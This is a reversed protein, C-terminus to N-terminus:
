SKETVINGELLLNGAAVTLRLAEKMFPEVKSTIRKINFLSGVERFLDATLMSSQRNIIHTMAVGLEQPPIDEAKRNGGTRYINFTEPNDEDKWYFVRGMSTTECLKLLAIREIFHQRLRDNIRTLGFHQTLREILLQQSIPAETDIVTYIYDEIRSNMMVSSLQVPTANFLDVPTVVYRPMRKQRKKKLTTTPQVDPQQKEKKIVPVENHRIDTALANDIERSIRAMVEDPNDWWDLAWIRVITWGLQRLVTPQILERDRITPSKIHDTGDSIIGILFRGNERPDVVALDIRFDSSGVHKEVQYGEKTIRRAISDVLSDDGVHTLRRNGDMLAQKGARAYELFLKLGAVGEAATRNLDIQDPTLTSFVKMEYRARSVAVNLRRWGGDRNLPGFNLTINGMKDPGFGVSFLIVDREDGQVNELNKIFIPEEGDLAKSELKPNNLLMENLLDEILSQQNTNFTVVGISFKSLAEDELRRKIEAIIADAEARNQRSHGRDYVGKVEVFSVKSIRDDPSPFTMLRNQYYCTNSFTILSEHRSRYHWNLFRSPLQLALCDDLLSELDELIINEEHTSASFFNTPPMQNPDGVIITNKGRAIVGVAENTPIQSAEDFIVLDFVQEGPEIYQAVSMPSMLMCPCIRHLLSRISEFLSRLSTGRGGNRINRQLINVASSRAAESQLDPLGDTISVFLEQRTLAEFQCCLEQFQKVLQDFMKGNFEKLEPELPLAYEAYAKSFGRRFSDSLSDPTITGDMLRDAVVGLGNNQLRHALANMACRDKLLGIHDLWAQIRKRIDALSSKPTIQEHTQLTSCLQRYADLLGDSGDAILRLEANLTVTSFAPDDRYSRAVTKRAKVIDAQEVFVALCTMIDHAVQKSRDIRDIDCTKTGLGGPLLPECGSECELWRDLQQWQRLNNITMAVDVGYATLGSYSTQVTDIANLFAQLRQANHLTFSDAGYALLGSLTIHINRAAHRNSGALINIAHRLDANQAVATQLYTWDAESDNWIRNGLSRLALTASKNLFAQEQQYSNLLDLMEQATASNVKTGDTRYATLQKFLKRNALWRPLFWKQNNATFQALLQQGDLSLVQQICHSLLEARHNNRQIGTAACQSIVQEDEDVTTAGLLNPVVHTVQLLARALNQLSTLTAASEVTKDYGVLRATEDVRSFMQQADIFLKDFLVDPTATPQGTDPPLITLLRSLRKWVPEMREVDSHLHNAGIATTLQQGLSDARRRNVIMLNLQSEARMPNDVDLLMPLFYDDVQLLAAALTQLRQRNKQNDAVSLAALNSIKATADAFRDIEDLLTQCDAAIRDRRTTSYDEIECGAFPSDLLMQQMSASYAYDEVLKDADAMHQSDFTGVFDPDLPLAPVDALSSYRAICDYISLGVPYVKHLAQMHRALQSRSENLQKAKRPYQPNRECLAVESTRKLQELVSSKKAKNSHLELCFPALGIQELRRQVVSLAAMKEAVFLVKLGRQLANAIINTITQSKGTGPPGHLIFTSPAIAAVIASMQSSDANIPLAIDGEKYTEDLQKEDVTDAPKVQPMGTILSNVLPSRKLLDFNSHLDNWMVFKNFSFIGLLAQEEILWRPQGAIARRVTRFVSQVDIGHEDTPLPSLGGIQIKFIQRLMEILTVNITADEDRSRIIHRRQAPRWIIEVPLLLIPAYRTKTSVESEYWRLLGIALFLTNAGNEELSLRALRYLNTQAARLMDDALYSHLIGNRLDNLLLTNNADDGGLPQYIGSLEQTLPISEPRPEIIFEKGDALSDELEAVHLSIMQITRKTIRTNLLNNRLSLDLLKREWVDRKTLQDFDNSAIIEDSSMTQAALDTDIPDFNVLATGNEDTVLHPNPTIGHFRARRLDVFLLLHDTDALFRKGADASRQADALQRLDFVMIDDIRNAFFSIDDSSADPATDATLWCGVAVARDGFFILPNYSAREFAAALITAMELLSAQRETAIQSPTNIRFMQRADYRERSDGVAIGQNAVTAAISRIDDEIASLNRSRYGAFACGPRCASAEDVIREILKDSPDIFRAFDAPNLSLGPWYNVPHLTVEARHSLMCDPGRHIEVTLTKKGTAQALILEDAIVSLDKCNEPIGPQLEPLTINMPAFGDLDLGIHVSVNDVPDSTLNTIKFAKVLQYGAIQLALNYDDLHDVELEFQATRLLCKPAKVIPTSTLQATDTGVYPNVAATKGLGFLMCEVVHTALDARMAHQSTIDDITKRTAFAIRDPENDPLNALRTAYGNEVMLRVIPLAAPLERFAGVDRLANVFSKKGIVDVGLRAIIYKIADHLRM